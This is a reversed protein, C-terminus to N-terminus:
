LSLFLAENMLCALADMADTSTAEVKEVAFVAILVKSLKCNFPELTDDGEMDGIVAAEPKHGFVANLEGTIRGKDKEM